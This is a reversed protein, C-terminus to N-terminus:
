PKVATVVPVLAMGCIPCKGPEARRVTPHMSCTWANAAPQAKTRHNAHEHQASDTPRLHKPSYREFPDFEPSLVQSASPPPEALANPNAPGEAISAIETSVCAGLNALLVAIVWPLVQKGM